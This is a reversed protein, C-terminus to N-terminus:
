RSAARIFELLSDLPPPLTLNALMAAVFGDQVAQPAFTTLKNLFARLNQDQLYGAQSGLSKRFNFTDAVFYWLEGVSRVRIAIVYQIEQSVEVGEKGMAREVMSPLPAGPRVSERRLSAGHIAAVASPAVIRESGGDELQVRMEAGGFEISAIRANAPFSIGFDDSNAGVDVDSM